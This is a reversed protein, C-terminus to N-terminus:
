KQLMLGHIPQYNSRLRLLCYTGGSNGETEGLRFWEQGVAGGWDIPLIGGVVKFCGAEDVEEMHETRMKRFRPVEEGGCKRDIRPGELIDVKGRGSVHEVVEVQFSVVIGPRPGRGHAM